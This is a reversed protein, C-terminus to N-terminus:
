GAEPTGLPSERAPWFPTMAEVGPRGAGDTGNHSRQPGPSPSPGAGVVPTPLSKKLEGVAYEALYELGVTDDYNYCVLQRFAHTDGRRYQYWLAVAERGDRAGGGPRAVGLSAEVSKLGGRVGLRRLLHRMDVHIPPLELGPLKAQMFPVDFSAGNFTVLVAAEGLLDRLYSADRGPLHATYRRGAYCGVVTMQHYASSLGTTEIDLYLARSSFEDLVRWWHTRPLHRAFFSADGNDLAVQSRVLFERLRQYGRAPLMLAHAQADLVDNWTLVGADWLSAETKLGVGPVHLFTSRLM